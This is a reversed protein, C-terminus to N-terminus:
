KETHFLIKLSGFTLLKFNQRNQKATMSTVRIVTFFGFFFGVFDCFCTRDIPWSSTATVLLAQNAGISCHDFSYSEALVAGLSIHLQLHPTADLPFAKDRPVPQRKMESCLKYGLRMQTRVLASVAINERCAVKGIRAYCNFPLAKHPNVSYFHSMLYM